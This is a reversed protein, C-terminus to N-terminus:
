KSELVFRKNLPQVPRNNDVGMVTRFKEIQDESLEIPTTLVSWNVGETCPPTTLSGYYHYYKKDKPLLGSANVSVGSVVNEKDIETPINDWLVQILKNLQGKKMFAGAVALEGNRNKHVLHLEMDYFQGKVTHESPAHFHFQVLEYNEGDITVTSGPECNVQITHGNNVIKLPTDKYSFEIKELDTKYTKNFDIPSQSMGSGCLAFEPKLTGWYQPAGEGAYGWHIEKKEVPKAPPKEAPKCAVFLSVLLVSLVVSVIKKAM